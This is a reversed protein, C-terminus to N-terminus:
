SNCCIVRMEQNALGANDDDPHAGINGYLRIEDAVQHYRKPITGDAKAADIQQALTHQEFGQHKLCRQLVRRGMTMSSLYCGLALCTAAERYESHVGPPIKQDQPLEFNGPPYQFRKGHDDRILVLKLCTPNQCIMVRWIDKPDHSPTGEWQQGVHVHFVKCHPCQELTMPRAM